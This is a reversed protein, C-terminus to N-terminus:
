RTKRGTFGGSADRRFLQETEEAIIEDIKRFVRTIGTRTSGRIELYLPRVGPRRPAGPQLKYGKITISTEAESMLEDLFARRLLKKRVRESLDNVEYDSTLMTLETPATTAQTTLQLAARRAAELRSAASDGAAAGQGAVVLATSMDDSTAVNIAPDSRKPRQGVPVDDATDDDANDDESGLEGDKGNAAADGDDLFDALGMAKAAERESRRRDRDAFDYNRARKYGRNFSAADGSRRAVTGLKSKERDQLVLLNLEEPAVNGSAELGTCLQSALMRDNPSSKDFFSIARGKRGARGTRGIRNVYAEYHDPLEYNIVLDLGCVDLGREAVSTAVLIPKTGDTFQALANERDCQDMEGYLCAVKGQYGRDCLRMYLDDCRSKHGVFVVVLHSRTANSSVATGEAAASLEEGLIQLLRLFQPEQQPGASVTYGPRGIGIPGTAATPDQDIGSDFLEITQAVNSSPSPKGGVRLELMDPHMLHVVVKKIETPMTSSMMCLQRDPRVRDLFAVVHAFFGDDFMRDAEDVVVFTVRSLNLVKGHNAVLLDFLRGPNAVM